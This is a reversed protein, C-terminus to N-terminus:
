VVRMEDCVVIVGHSQVYKRILDPAVGSEVMEWVQEVKTFYAFRLCEMSIKRVARNWQGIRHIQKLEREAQKRQYRITQALTM